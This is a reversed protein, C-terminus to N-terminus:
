CSGVSGNVVNVRACAKARAVAIVLDVCRNPGALPHTDPPVAIRESRRARGREADLSQVDKASVVDPLLEPVARYETVLRRHQQM